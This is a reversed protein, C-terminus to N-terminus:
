LIFFFYRTHAVSKKGDLGLNLIFFVWFTGFNLYKSDSFCFQVVGGGWGGVELGVGVGFTKTFITKRCGILSFSNSDGYM